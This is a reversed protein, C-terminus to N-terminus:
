PRPALRSCSTSSSGERPAGRRELAAYFAEPEVWDEPALAGRRGGDGDGELALVAFAAAVSAGTFADMSTGIATGPGSAATRVTVEAPAGDRARRGANGARVRATRAAGRTGRLGAPRVSRSTSTRRSTARPLDFRSTASSSTM